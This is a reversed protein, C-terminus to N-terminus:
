FWEGNYNVFWMSYDEVLVHENSNEDCAELDVLPIDFNKDDSTRSVTVIIGYNQDISKLNILKFQDHYSARKKRLKKHENESGYAWDFKEEWAFYGLSEQGTLLLDSPLNQSLYQFYKELMELSVDPLDEISQGPVLIGAVRKEDDDLEADDIIAEEKKNM